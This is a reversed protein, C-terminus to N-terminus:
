NTQAGRAVWIKLKTITCSPLKGGPPMASNTGTQDVSGILSGDLAATQLDSMNTFDGTGDGGAVHCQSNTACNTQIIAAIQSQYTVGVTDCFTNPYLYEENDYYCGSTAMMVMSVLM